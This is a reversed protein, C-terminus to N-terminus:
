VANEDKKEIEYLEIVRDTYLIGDLHDLEHQIIRALFDKAILHKERGELDTYVVKIETARKVTGQRDPVSLCGEMAIGEGERTTIKPNIMYLRHDEGDDITVVRRLIGVQVAALGVGDADDMTEFMDEVLIKIRNDIKEVIRSKKRLIPDEDTRIVRKAM